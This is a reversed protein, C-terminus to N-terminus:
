DKRDPSNSVTPDSAGGSTRIENTKVEATSNKNYLLFLAKMALSLTILVELISYVGEPTNLSKDKAHKELFDGLKNYIEKQDASLDKYNKINM